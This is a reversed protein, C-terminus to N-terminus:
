EEDAALNGPLCLFGLAFYQCVKSTQWFLTLPGLAHVIWLVRHESHQLFASAHPSTWSPIIARVTSVNGVPVEGRRGARIAPEGKVLNQHEMWYAPGIGDPRSCWNESNERAPVAQTWCPSSVPVHLHQPASSHTISSSFKEERLLERQSSWSVMCHAAEGFAKPESKKECETAAAKNSIHEYSICICNSKRAYM